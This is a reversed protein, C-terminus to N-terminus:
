VFTSLVSNMGKYQMTTLLVSKIVRSYIREKVHKLPVASEPLFKPMRWYTIIGFLKSSSVTKTSKNQM